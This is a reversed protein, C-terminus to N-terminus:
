LKFGNPIIAGKKVVVIGDKVTYAPHDVPTLHNGGNISVDDGIKSDKDVICNRLYCREGIGIKPIGSEVSEAMQNVTQYYDSGM